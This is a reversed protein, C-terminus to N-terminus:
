SARQEVYSGVVELTREVEEMTNYHTLGFRVIGGSRDLGLREIIDPAYVHGDWVYIGHEGLHRALAANDIGSGSISVTPVRCGFRSVDTIGHVQVGRLARLGDILAATLPKEYRAMSAFASYLTKTRSRLTGDPEVAPIGFTEGVWALYEVAGLTGAIGELSKVGTEFRDPVNDPAIRLRPPHLEELLERRGYLVGLHPGYFKYSSAVLMDCGLRRVDVPGHPAYQVADVYTIAGCSAARRCIEAVDNITGLINSAYNIAVLATAPSLVRDLQALDLEYTAPDFEVRHVTMGREEAMRLWPSVNGDHQMGTVVLEDRSGFRVGLARSMGFTLTTMNPGFVIEGPSSANFLDAIASRAEGIVATAKVSTPFRGNVNARYETLAETVRAIVRDPVQTGAPGDLYIPPNASARLSPFRARVAEVDFTDASATM